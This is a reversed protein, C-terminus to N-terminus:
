PLGRRRGPQRCRDRSCASSAQRPSSPAPSRSRGLHCRGRGSPVLTNGGVEALVLVLEAPEASTVFIWSPGRCCWCPCSRPCRYPSPRRPLAGPRGLAQALAGAHHDAVLVALAAPVSGDSAGVYPQGAGLRLLEPADALGLLAHVSHLDAGRGSRLRAPLRAGLWPRAIPRGTTYYLYSSSCAPHLAASKLPLQPTHCTM